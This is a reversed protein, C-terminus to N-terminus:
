LSEFDVWYFKVELFLMQLLITKYIKNELILTLLYFNYNKEINSNITIKSYM